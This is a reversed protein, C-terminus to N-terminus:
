TTPTALFFLHLGNPNNRPLVNLATLFATYSSTGSSVGSGLNLIGSARGPTFNSFFFVQPVRSAQSQIPNAGPYLGGASRLGGTVPLGDRSFYFFVNDLYVPRTLQIGNIPGLQWRHGATGALGVAVPRQFSLEIWNSGNDNVVGITLKLRGGDLNQLRRPQFVPRNNLFNHPSNTGSVSFNAGERFPLNLNAVAGDAGDAHSASQALPGSDADVRDSSAPQDVARVTERVLFDQAQVKPLSTLGSLLNRSEMTELQLTMRRRPTGM